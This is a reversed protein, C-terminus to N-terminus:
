RRKLHKKMVWGTQPLKDKPDFYSVLVWKHNAQLIILEYDKPIRSITLTKKKPKLKVECRRITIRYEKTNKLQENVAEIFQVVSDQKIAIQNVEQKTPLEPKEQLFDYYQHLGSIRLIIDIILLGQVGYKKVFASVLTMLVQFQRKHEETVEETLNESFEVAQETVEDYDAIIEWKRQQAAIAAVQGSISSLASNLNNIQAIAPSQIKFAESITRLGGLLEEHKRNISTIAEITTQPIVFKTHLSLNKTIAEIASLSPNDGIRHYQQISKGLEAMMQVGSLSNAIKTQVNIM